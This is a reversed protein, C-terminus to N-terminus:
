SNGYITPPSGPGKFSAVFSAGVKRFHLGDNERAAIVVRKVNEAIAKALHEPRRGHSSLIVVPADADLRAGLAAALLPADSPELTEVDGHPFRSLVLNGRGGTRPTGQEAQIVIFSAGTADPEPTEGALLHRIEEATGAQMFVLRLGLEGCQQYLGERSDHNIPMSAGTVCLGHPQAPDLQQDQAVLWDTDMDRYIRIGYRRYLRAASGPRKKELQLLGDLNEWGDAAAVSAMSPQKWSHLFEDVPLHYGELIDRIIGEAADASEPDADRNSLLLLLRTSAWLDGGAFDAKREAPMAAFLRLGLAKLRPDREPRGDVYEWLLTHTITECLSRFHSSTPSALSEGLLAAHREILRLQSEASLPDIHRQFANSSLVHAFDLAANIRARRQLEEPADSRPVNGNERRMRMLTKCHEQTRRAETDNATFNGQALFSVLEDAHTYNLVDHRIEADMYNCLEHLDRRSWGAVHRQYAVHTPSHPVLSRVLIPLEAWLRDLSRKRALVVAWPEGSSTRDKADLQRTQREVEFLQDKEYFPQNLPCGAATCEQIYTLLTDETWKEPIAPLQPHTSGEEDPGEAPQFDDLAM